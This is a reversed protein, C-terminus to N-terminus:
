DAEGLRDALADMMEWLLGAVSRADFSVPVYTYEDNTDDREQYHLLGDVHPNPECHFGCDLGDSESYHLTDYARIPTRRWADSGRDSAEPEPSPNPIWTM